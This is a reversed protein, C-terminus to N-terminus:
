DLGPTKLFLRGLFDKRANECSTDSIPELGKLDTQLKLWPTQCLQCTSVFNSFWCQPHLSSTTPLPPFSSSFPVIERRTIDYMNTGVPREADSYWMRLYRVNYIDCNLSSSTLIWRFSSRWDPPSSTFVCIGEYETFTNFSLSPDLFFFNPYFHKNNQKCRCIEQTVM